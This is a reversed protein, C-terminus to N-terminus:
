KKFGILWNTNTITTFILINSVSETLKDLKDNQKKLKNNMSKFARQYYDDSEELTKNISEGLSIIFKKNKKSFDYDEQFDNKDELMNDIEELIDICKINKPKSCARGTNGGEIFTYKEHDGIEAPKAFNSKEILQNNENFNWLDKSEWFASCAYVVISNHSINNGLNYLVSQQHSDINYRFYPKKWHKWENEKHNRSIFEPRKYQIFLNCKFEPIQKSVFEKKEPNLLESTLQEGSPILGFELLEWLKQNRSYIAADIGIYKECRQSPAFINRSDTLEINMLTEYQKEAFEANM